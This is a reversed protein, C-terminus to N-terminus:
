KSCPMLSPPKNCKNCPAIKVIFQFGLRLKYDVPQEPMFIHINFASHRCPKSCPKSSSGSEVLKDDHPPGYKLVEVQAGVDCTLIVSEILNLM